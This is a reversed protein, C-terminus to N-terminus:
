RSWRRALGRIFFTVTGAADLDIRYRVFKLLGAGGLGSAINLRQWQPMPLGGSKAPSVRSPFTGAIHWDGGDEVSQGTHNQMSTEICANVGAKPSLFLVGLELDLIDCRSVDVVSWLPQIVSGAAALTATIPHPTLTIFAPM